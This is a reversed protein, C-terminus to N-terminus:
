WWGVITLLDLSAVLYVSDPKKAPRAGCTRKAELTCMNRRERKEGRVWAGETSATHRRSADSVWQPGKNSSLETPGADLPRAASPGESVVSPPRAVLRARNGRPNAEELAAVRVGLVLLQDEKTDRGIGLRQKSTCSPM